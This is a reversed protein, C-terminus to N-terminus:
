IQQTSPLAERMKRAPSIAYSQAYQDKRLLPCALGIPTLETALSNNLHGSVLKEFRDSLM